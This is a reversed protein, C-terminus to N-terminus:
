PQEKDDQSSRAELQAFKKIFLMAVREYLDSQANRDLVNWSSRIDFRFMSGEPGATKVIVATIDAQDLDISVILDLLKELRKGNPIDLIGRDGSGDYASQTIVKGDSKTRNWHGGCARCYWFEVDRGGGSNICPIKCFDCQLTSRSSESVGIGGTRTFYDRGSNSMFHKWLQMEFEDTLEEAVIGSSDGGYWISCPAFALRLWRAIALIEPLNGREYDIGYYRGYLYVKVFTEGDEPRISPGDQDWRKVIQLSQHGASGKKKGGEKTTEPREIYFTGPGFATQIRIAEQRVLEPQLKRQVRVFMEADVGM